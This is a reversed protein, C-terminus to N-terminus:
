PQAPPPWRGLSQLVLDPRDTQLIDLGTAWVESYLSADNSLGASLDTVFADTFARHGAAHIAPVLMETSGGDNIEVIVPPHDAFHTLTADLLDTSSIRVQTFLNPELALAADIKDNSSTDFIAWELTGTKQIAAVLLDVRDTKNADLLVHVKGKAELLVEEITPVHECSFDGAFKSTKLKLAQVDALTMEEVLGTGETTRDVEPDHMNVLVEDKTIRPDTEIFDIGMAVAARVAALTNEPAIIGLQGGAARHGTVLKTTCTRDTACGIPIANVREPAKPASCDFLGPDLVPSPGQGGVGGGGGSGGEGGSGGGGVTTEAPAPGCAGLLLALVPALVLKHQM